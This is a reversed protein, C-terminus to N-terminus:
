FSDSKKTKRWVYILRQGATVFSFVMIIGLAVILAYDIQSLLLGLALVVVREARTFLGVECDLGIAEARARIYSVLVSGLLAVGVISVGLISQERAYIVLISLLLAGEALRDLTSDLVAGFQTVRGTSRALAGDLMDFFGALLVVFGAAFLHETIILAAAGLTLLFGFWTIANPSIPTKSLPQVILRTLSHGATKRFGSLKTLPWREPPIISQSGL